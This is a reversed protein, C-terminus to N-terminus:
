AFFDWAKTIRASSIALQPVLHAGSTAWSYQPQRM